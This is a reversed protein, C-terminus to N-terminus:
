SPPSPLSARSGKCRESSPYQSTNGDTTVATTKTEAAKKKSVQDRNLEEVTMEM